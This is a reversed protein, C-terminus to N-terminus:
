EGTNQRVIYYCLVMHVLSFPPGWFQLYYDRGAIEHTSALADAAIRDPGDPNVEMIRIVQYTVPAGNLNWLLRITQDTALRFKDTQKVERPEVAHSHSRKTTGLHSSPDRPSKSERKM